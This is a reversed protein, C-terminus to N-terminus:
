DLQFYLFGGFGIVTLAVGVIKFFRTTGLGVLQFARKAGSINQTAQAPAVFRGASGGSGLEVQICMFLVLLGYFGLGFFGFLSVFAFAFVAAILWGIAAVVHLM